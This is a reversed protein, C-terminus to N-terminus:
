WGKAPKWTDVIESDTSFPREGDEDVVHYVDFCAAALCSHNPLLLITSGLPFNDFPFPTGDRCRIMTVEQSMRYCELEPRGFVACMDGQPTVEKTLATAGADVMIANRHSDEYHGMVRALVFGAVCSENACAGTYLQQRDYFVYNGPHLEVNNPINMKEHSFMSPTSGVSIDLSSTDFTQLHDALLNLFEIIVAHDDHVINKMEAGNDINYSHGCHSYLGKLNLYPSNIIKKALAVGEANCTTGARHYGTDLKLFVSWDREPLSSNSIFEELFNVQGPNDILIHISGDNNTASALKMKLSYIASLKSKCIPIGYLIDSFPRCQHHCALDAVMSLEPLTSVVFGIVSAQAPVGGGGDDGRIGSQILCGERTKHTKVHLRLRHIGNANASTRVLECNQRFAHRNVIFAPTSLDILKQRTSMAAM